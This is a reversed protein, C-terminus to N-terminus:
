QLLPFITAAVGTFTRPVKLPVLEDWVEVDCVLERVLQDVEVVRADTPPEHLMETAGHLEM